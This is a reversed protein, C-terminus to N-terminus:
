DLATAIERLTMERPKRGLRGVKAQQERTLALTWRSEDFKAAYFPASTAWDFYLATGDTLVVDITGSTPNPDIRGSHATAVVEGRARNTQPDRVDVMLTIGELGDTLPNRSRFYIAVNTDTDPQIVRGAELNGAVIYKIKDLLLTNFRALMPAWERSAQGLAVTLICAALLVPGFVKLLHVGSTRMAMIENDAALRGVGLLIGVLVAMPITLILMPPLLTWFFEAFLWLPVGRTLLLDMLRFLHTALLVFTFVALGMLMPSVLEGLVYRQLILGGWWKRM